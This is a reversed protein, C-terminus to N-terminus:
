YDSDLKLHGIRNWKYASIALVDFQSHKIEKKSKKAIAPEYKDCELNWNIKRQLILVEIGIRVDEAILNLVKTIYAM